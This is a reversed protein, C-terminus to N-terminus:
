ETRGKWHEITWAEGKSPYCVREAQDKTKYVFSAIHGPTKIYWVSPSCHGGAILERVVAARTHPSQLAAHLIAAIDARDDKGLNREYIAALAVMDVDKPKIM